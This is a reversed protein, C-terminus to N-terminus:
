HDQALLAALSSLAEDNYLAHSDSVRMGLTVSRRQGTKLDIPKLSGDKLLEAIRDEPLWGYCLGHRVADIASDITNMSWSRGKARHARDLDEIGHIEACPFRALASQTISQKRAALPHQAAVVARLHVEAVPNTNRAGPNAILIAIDYDSEPVEELTRRITEILHVEIDPHNQAFQCLSPFLRAKPFLNDILLRLTTRQGALARRARREVRELDEILPEVEALFQTGAQTLVARRGQIEILQCGMADQLRAIAYSITSQSRNLSEAAAAYSGQQVVAKLVAWQEITSRPIPM